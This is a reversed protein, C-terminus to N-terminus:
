GKTTLNGNLVDLLSGVQHGAFGGTAAGGAVGALTGIGVGKIISRLRNRTEEPQMQSHIAGGVGGLVAGGAAGTMGHYLAAELALRGAIPTGAQKIRRNKSRKRIHEVAADAASNAVENGAVNLALRGISGIKTSTNPPLENDETGVDDQPEALSKAMTEAPLHEETVLVPLTSNRQRQKVLEQMAKYKQYRPDRKEWMSKAAAHSGMGLLSAAALYMGLAKNAEGDAAKEFVLDGSWWKALGDILEGASSAKHRTNAYEDTLAQDFEKRAHQLRTDMENRVRDAQGKDAERYGEMLSKPITMAAAPYFTPLTSPDGTVRTGHEKKEDLLQHIGLAADELKNKIPDTMFGLLAQKSFLRPEIWSAEKQPLAPINIMTERGGVGLPESPMLEEVTKRPNQERLQYGFDHSTARIKDLLVRAKAVAEDHGSPVVAHLRQEQAAMADQWADAQKLIPEAKEAFKGM